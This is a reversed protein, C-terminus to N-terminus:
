EARRLQPAVGKQECIGVLGAQCFKVIDPWSRCSNYLIPRTIVGLEIFIYIINSYVYM